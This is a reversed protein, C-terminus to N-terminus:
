PSAIVDDLIITPLKPVNRFTRDNTLFFSCNVSLATTAHIADPTKLNTTARLTAAEQLIQQSIPILQIDTGSLLQEYANILVTNQTRLPVVLTELITLESTVIQLQNAQLKTWLPQLLQWYVPNFEVSYIVVATDLYIIAGDPLILQGM